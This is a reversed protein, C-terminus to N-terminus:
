ARARGARATRDPHATGPSARAHPKRRRGRRAAPRASRANAAPPRRDRGAACPASGAWRRGPHRRARRPRRSGSAACYRPPGSSRRSASGRRRRAPPRTAAREPAPHADAVGADALEAGPRIRSRRLPRTCPESPSITRVQTLAGSPATSIARHHVRGFVRRSMEGGLLELLDALLEGRDVVLDEGLEAIAIAAVDHAHDLHVPPEDDEAAQHEQERARFRGPRRPGGRERQGFHELVHLDAVVDHVALPVPHVVRLDVRRRPIPVRGRRRRRPLVRVVVHVVRVGVDAALVLVEAVLDHPDVRVLLPVRDIEQLRDVVQQQRGEELPAHGEVVEVHLRMRVREFGM